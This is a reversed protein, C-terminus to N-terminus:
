KKKTKWVPSRLEEKPDMLSVSTPKNDYLKNLDAEIFTKQKQNNYSALVMCTSMFMLLFHVYSSYIIKQLM